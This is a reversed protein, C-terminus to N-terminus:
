NSCLSLRQRSSRRQCELVLPRVSKRVFAGPLAKPKMEELDRTITAEPIDGDLWVWYVWPDAQRPPNKFRSDLDGSPQAVAPLIAVVTMALVASFYKLKKVHIMILPYLPIRYM